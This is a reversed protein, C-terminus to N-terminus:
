PWKCKVPSYGRLRSNPIKKCNRVTRVKDAMSEMEEPTLGHSSFAQLYLCPLKLSRKTYTFGPHDRPRIGVRRALIGTVYIDELNFIGDPSDEMAARFLAGAASASMLYATGSLYNPYVKGSFMHPSAYWKNRVDRIPHAGCILNGLLLPSPPSAAAAAAAADAAETRRDVERALSRLNVFVDDDTKLVYSFPFDPSSALKLLFLSKISLNAYSDVFDEQVLDGFEEQERRLAADGERGEPGVDKRRGVLFVVRVGDPTLDKSAWARRVAERERRNEVASCVAVLLRDPKKQGSGGGEGNVGAM